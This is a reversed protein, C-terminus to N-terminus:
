EGGSESAWYNFLTVLSIKSESYLDDNSFLGHNPSLPLIIQMTCTIFHSSAKKVKVVGLLHSWNVLMIHHALESKDVLSDIELLNESVSAFSVIYHLDLGLSSALLLMSWYFKTRLSIPSTTSKPVFSNPHHADLVLIALDLLALSPINVFPFSSVKM